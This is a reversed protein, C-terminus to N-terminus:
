SGRTCGCIIHPRHTIFHRIKRMDAELVAIILHTKTTITSVWTTSQYVNKRQVVSATCEYKCRNTSIQLHHFYIHQLLRAPPLLCVDLFVRSSINEVVRRRLGINNKKWRVCVVLLWMEKVNVQRDKEREEKAINHLECYRIKNSAAFFM